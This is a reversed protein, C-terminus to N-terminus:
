LFESTEFICYRGTNYQGKTLILLNIFNKRSEDSPCEYCVIQTGKLGAPNPLCITGDLFMEYCIIYKSNTFWRHENIALPQTVNERLFKLKESAIIRCQKEFTSIKPSPKALLSAPLLTLFFRRLM